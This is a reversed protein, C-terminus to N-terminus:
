LSSTQAWFESALTGVQRPISGRAGAGRFESNGGAWWSGPGPDTKLVEGPYLPLAPPLSFVGLPSPSHLVLSGIGAKAPHCRWGLFPCVAGHGKKDLSGRDKVTDQDRGMGARSHATWSPQALFSGHELAALQGASPRWHALLNGGTPRATCTCVGPGMRLHSKWM